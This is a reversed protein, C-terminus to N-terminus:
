AQHRRAAGVLDYHSAVEAGCDPWRDTTLWYDVLGLARCLGIFRPSQRVRANVPLFLHALGDLPTLCGDPACLLALSAPTVADYIEELDGGLNAWLALLSFRPRGAAVDQLVRLRTQELVGSGPHRYAQAAFFARETVARGAASYREPRHHALLRDACAMDGSSAAAWAAQALVNPDDPWRAVADEFLRLASATEGLAHLAIGYATVNPPRLPDVRYAAEAHSAAESVRGVALGFLLLEWRLEVTTPVARFM